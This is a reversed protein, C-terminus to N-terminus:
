EDKIERLKFYEERTISYIFSDNWNGHHYRYNRLKGEKKFNNAELVKQAGINEVDTDAEVRVLPYNNFLHKLIMKLVKKGLGTGRKETETIVMGLNILGKRNFNIFVLGVPGFDKLEVLLVQLEDSIYGDENYKKEMEIKSHFHFEQYRGRIEPTEWQILKELDEKQITRIIINNKEIMKAMRQTYFDVMMEKTNWRTFM